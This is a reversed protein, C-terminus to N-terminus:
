KKFIFLMFEKQPIPLYDHKLIANNSLSFAYELMLEPKHYFVFDEKQYSETLYSSLFDVILVENVLNFAKKIIIKSYEYNDLTDKLNFNLVGLMVGIDAFAKVNSHSELINTVEFSVDKNSKYKKKNESILDFNVDWGIYNKVGIHKDKLFMYYDGFGCGIDLVTKGSFNLGYDLTQLFRYLQQEVTGWGLTKVNYGLSKYRNSYRVITENTIKDLVDKMNTEM